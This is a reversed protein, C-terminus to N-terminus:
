RRRSKVVAETTPNAKFKRLLNNAELDDPNARLYNGDAQHFGPVTVKGAKMLRALEQARFRRGDALEFIAFRRLKKSYEATRMRAEIPVVLIQAFLVMNGDVVVLSDPTSDIRLSGLPTDDALSDALTTLEAGLAAALSDRLTDPANEIELDASWAKQVLTLWGLIGIVTLSAWGTFLLAGAGITLLWKLVTYFAEDFDSVDVVVGDMDFAIATTGRVLSPVMPGKFTFDVNPFPFIVDRRAKGDVQIATDTMLLRLREIAAGEVSTGEKAAAGRELMLDLFTRHYAVAMGMREAVLSESIGPVSTTGPPGVTVALSDVSDEAGPMLTLVASWASRPPRDTEDPTRSKNLGDILPATLPIRSAALVASIAPDALFGDIDAPTILDPAPTGDVGGYSVTVAREDDDSLAFVPKAAADLFAVLPDSEPQGAVRAEIRGTLKLRTYPAGASPKELTLVPPDLTLIVDFLTGGVTRQFELQQPLIGLRSLEQFYDDFVSIAIAVGADADGLNVNM